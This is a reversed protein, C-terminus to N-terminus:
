ARRGPLATWYIALAIGALAAAPAVLALRTTDAAEV